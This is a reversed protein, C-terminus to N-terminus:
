SFKGVDSETTFRKDCGYLSLLTGIDQLTFVLSINKLLNNYM